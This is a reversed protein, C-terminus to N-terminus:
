RVLEPHGAIVDGMNTLSPNGQDWYQSHVDPNWGLEYWPGAKGPASEFNVGGYGYEAPDKGFGHTIQGYLPVPDHQAKTTFVHNGNQSPDTGTLSLDSAHNTMTGPSGVFVVDDANLSRGHIAADGIVTTGYSHGVVVNHSRPGDHTARLGDQFHDLNPAGADAYKDQMADTLGPPANYGYWTVVATSPQGANRAATRMAGSRELDGQIGSLKSGTGPVFTAVNQATDPNGTAIIGRGKEDIGMLYKPPQAQPGGGVGKSVADYGASQTEAADYRRKWTDYETYAQMQAPTPDPANPGGGPRHPINHGDAWDPHEATAQTLADHGTSQLEALHQRNYHDRDAVPIGDHNGLSHDHNYLADKDAPSLTDWFAKLEVPDRPLQAKGDVIAQAQPSLAGGGPPSQAASALADLGRNLAAALRGDAAAVADLARSLDAARNRADTNLVEQRVAQDSGLLIGPLSKGAAAAAPATVTGDDAVSCGTAVADDVLGLAHQQASAIDPAGANLADIIGLIAASVHNAAAQEGMSRAAAAAAGEGKWHEQTADVQRVMAQMQTDFTQTMGDLQTGAATLVDPHWDRLVPITPRM